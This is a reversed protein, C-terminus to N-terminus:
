RYVQLINSHLEAKTLLLEKRLETIKLTSESIIVDREEKSISSSTLVSNLKDQEVKMQDKLSNIKNELTVIDVSSQIQGALIISISNPNEATIKGTSVQCSNPVIREAMQVTKSSVDSVLEAVPIRLPTDSACIEFVVNYAISNEPKIEPQILAENVSIIESVVGDMTMGTISKGKSIPSPNDTSSLNLFLLYKQLEYRVNKLENRIDNIKQHIASVKKARDTSPPEDNI